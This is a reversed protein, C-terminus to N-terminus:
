DSFQFIKYLTGLDGSMIGATLQVPFMLREDNDTVDHSQFGTSTQIGGVNSIDSLILSLFLRKPSPPRTTGLGTFIMRLKIIFWLLLPMCRSSRAIRAPYLAFHLCLRPFLTCCCCGFHRRKHIVSTAITEM